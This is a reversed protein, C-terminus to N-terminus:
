GVEHWEYLEEISCNLINSVNKAVQISMLQRNNVYKNIQQETIGLIIALERQTM